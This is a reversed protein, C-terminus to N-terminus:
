GDFKDKEVVPIVLVQAHRVRTPPAYRLMPLWIALQKRLLDDTPALAPLPTGRAVLQARAQTAVIRLRTM